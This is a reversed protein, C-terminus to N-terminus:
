WSNKLIGKFCFRHVQCDRNGGERKRGIKRGEEPKNRREYVFLFPTKLNCIRNGPIKWAVSDTAM